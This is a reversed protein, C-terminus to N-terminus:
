LSQLTPLPENYVSKQIERMRIRRAFQQLIGFQDTLCTMNCAFLDSIRDAEKLDLHGYTIILHDSNELHKSLNSLFRSALPDIRKSRKLFWLLDKINLIQIHLKRLETALKTQKQKIRNMDYIVVYWVKSSHAGKRGFVTTENKSRNYEILDHEPPEWGQIVHDAITPDAHKFKYYYYVDGDKKVTDIYRFGPSNCDERSCLEDTAHKPRGGRGPM